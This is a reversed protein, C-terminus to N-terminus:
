HALLFATLWLWGTGVFRDGYSWFVHYNGDNGRWCAVQARAFLEHLLNLLLSRFPSFLCFVILFRSEWSPPPM